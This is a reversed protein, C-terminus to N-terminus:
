KELRGYAILGGREAFMHQYGGSRLFEIRSKVHQKFNQKYATGRDIELLVPHKLGYGEFLLWADPIIKTNDVKGPHKEMEYSIREKTLTFEPHKKCFVHAAVLFRSLTLNHHLLGHSLHKTYQPRFYWDVAMGLERTLYDRGRHGLTFVKEAKGAQPLPFRFLYHNEQCDAGGCLKRLISRAHTLAGPSFVLYTIDQATLYRYWHVARLIAEMSPTIILPKNDIAM